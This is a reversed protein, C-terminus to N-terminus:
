EYYLTTYLITIIHSEYTLTKGYRLQLLGLMISGNPDHESFRLANHKYLDYHM